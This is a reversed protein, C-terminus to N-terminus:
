YVYETHLTDGIWSSLTAKNFLTSLTVETKTIHLKNQWNNIQWWIDIHHTCHWFCYKCSPPRPLGWSIPISWILSHRDSVQLVSINELWRYIIKECHTFTKIVPWLGTFGAKVTNLLTSLVASLNWQKDHQSLSWKIKHVNLIM